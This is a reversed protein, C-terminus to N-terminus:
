ESVFRLVPSDDPLSAGRVSVVAAAIENAWQIASRLDMGKQLGSLLTGIHADGAGITDVVTAPTAPVFYPEGEPELCCAGDSGRTIIVTNGTRDRLCRAASMVDTCGSMLCGETENIHLVPSLALLRNMREEPIRLVRPGPAFYIEPGRNEELWSVLEGGTPEELELGCIYAMGYDTAHFPNMWEKRFSYEVGHISMFTREGGAEVLCYCCGNEDPLKVHIPFGKETLKKGVYDGYLGSGVPCVFTVDADTQRLINAVNFACGGLAMTQSVPRIDEETVPLHDVNIILDVCTSGIVLIPAKRKQNNNFKLNEKLNM